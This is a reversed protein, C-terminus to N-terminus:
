VHKNIDPDQPHQPSESDELESLVHVLVGTEALRKVRATALNEDKERMAGCVLRPRATALTTMSSPQPIKATGVPM